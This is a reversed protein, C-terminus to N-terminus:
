RAVGWVMIGGLHATLWVFGAAGTMLIAVAWRATPSAGARSIDRATVRHVFVLIPVLTGLIITSILGLKEHLEVFTEVIAVGESQQELSEGTFWAGLAGLFAAATLWILARLWAIRDSTLWVWACFAAAITLAIPFHVVVPHLVPITYDFIRNM